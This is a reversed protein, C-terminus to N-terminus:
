FSPTNDIMGKGEDAGTKAQRIEQEDVVDEDLDGYGDEDGPGIGHSYGGGFGYEYGYGYGEGAAAGAGETERVAGAGQVEYTESLEDTMGIAMDATRKRGAM